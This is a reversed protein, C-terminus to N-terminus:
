YSSSFVCGELEVRRLAACRTAIWGSEIGGQAVVCCKMEDRWGVGTSAKSYEGRPFCVGGRFLGTFDTVARVRRSGQELTHYSGQVTVYSVTFGPDLFGQPNVQALSHYGQEERNSGSPM